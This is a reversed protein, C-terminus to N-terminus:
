SRTRKVKFFRKYTKKKIVNRTFHRSEEIEAALQNITDRADDVEQELLNSERAQEIEAALQNITDRADDVEQERSKLSDRILKRM